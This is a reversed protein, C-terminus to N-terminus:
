SAHGASRWALGPLTVGRWGTVQNRGSCRRAAPVRISPALAPVQVCRWKGALGRSAVGFSCILMGKFYGEVIVVVDCLVAQSSYVRRAGAGSTREESM